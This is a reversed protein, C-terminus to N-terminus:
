LCLDYRSIPFEAINAVLDCFFVRDVFILVTFSSGVLMLFPVESAKFVSFVEFFGLTDIVVSLEEDTCYM